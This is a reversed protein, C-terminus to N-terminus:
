GARKNWEEMSGDYVSVNEDGTLLHVFATLTAAIGGGCYTITQNTEGPKVATILKKIEEPPKLKGDALLEEYFQNVSGPIHGTGAYSMHVEGSFMEPSLVNLLCTNHEDIADCVKRYSSFADSKQTATFDGPPYQNLGTETPYGKEVWDDLGGDLVKIDPHGCFYLLWWARTAWMMHGSSYLVVKSDNSIGVSRFYQQLEEVAPLTFHMGSETNTAGEVLDLLMAGCIHKHSYNTADALIHMECNKEEVVISTDYIRLNPDHLEQKLTDADILLDDRASNM